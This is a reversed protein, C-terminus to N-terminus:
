PEINHVTYPQLLQKCHNFAQCVRVVAKHLTLLVPIPESHYVPHYGQAALYLARVGAGSWDIVQNNKPKAKCTKRRCGHQHVDRAQLEIQSSETRSSRNWRLLFNPLVSSDCVAANHSGHYIYSQLFAPQAVLKHWNLLKWETESDYRLPITSTCSVFLGLQINAYSFSKEQQPPKYIVESDDLITWLRYLYAHIGLSDCFGFEFRQHAQLPCLRVAM